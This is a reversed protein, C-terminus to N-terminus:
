RELLAVAEVHPTFVFQDIPTVSLLRYGSDVLIRLDRALSGPNCSVAAIRAVGSKALQTAQAQAGGRPPDFVVGEIKKLEHATVPSRFLDRKATSIPKLAGGAERWSRVLTALAAGDSEVALVTSREALRLAFTGFGSFLDATHKCDFLHKTVLAAMAQEAGQVAQVFGGPPPTVLARGIVLLPRRREILMEDNLTLRAIAPDSAEGIAKQRAEEPTFSGTSIAIDLGNDCAVVSLKIAGSRPALHAAIAQVVPLAQEIRPLLVPCQSIDVVRNTNRESFGLVTEAGSRIATFVVRRREHAGFPIIPEPKLELEERELAEEVLRSKWKLYLSRELHQLHCGGCTGFHSCIPKIRARSASVVQELKRREGESSTQVTEGPLAYPVYVSDGEATAVGDGRNGLREIIFTASM